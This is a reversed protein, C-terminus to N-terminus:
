KSRVSVSPVALVAFALAVGAFVPHALYLAVAAFALLLAMPVMTWSM